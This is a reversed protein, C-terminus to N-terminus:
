GENIPELKKAVVIQNIFNADSRPLIKGLVIAMLTFPSIFFPTLLFKLTNNSPFLVFYIYNILQQFVTEIYSPGKEHISIKFGSRTLLDKIGFSTYRAYDNPQEHEPWSFPITIMLNGGPKLVRTIERIIDELNFVHEFVESSFVSDFYHDEFPLKKGDYFFDVKDTPNSHGENVELDVGIHKTTDFIPEYLKSGCGFDLLVGSMNAKNKLISQYITRRNLYTANFFVGLFSPMFQQRTNFQKIREIM